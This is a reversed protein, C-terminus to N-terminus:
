RGYFQPNFDIENTDFVDNDNESNNLSDLTKQRDKILKDIRAQTKKIENDSVYSSSHNLINTAAHQLSRNRSNLEERNYLRSQPQRRELNKEIDIKQNVLDEM